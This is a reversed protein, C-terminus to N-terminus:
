PSSNPSYGGTGPVWRDALVSPSPIRTALTPRDTPLPPHTLVSLVRGRDFGAGGLRPDPM